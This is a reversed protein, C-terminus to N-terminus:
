FFILQYKVRVKKNLTICIGDHDSYYPSYQDIMPKDWVEHQDRWYAHDIYGGRIHTAENVLQNFGNGQLGQSMRNNRNILYCINFDGTILSPKGDTLMKLIHNLLEVSHGNRSRYVNIIDLDPSTFKTIQMNTEKVDQEHEVEAPKYYTDIGKGNGISIFHSDYGNLQHQDEEAISISKEILHIIDAELMHEDSQVDTFHSKLGACNLSAVKVANQNHKQWPTPNKNLSIVKMRELEQLAISSTRIKHEDLSNLIFIQELQQVRSLMVYAQADEFVSNLHLVVKTPSPITQGQIKHSTIAFALKVPFQIVTASAGAEGSRKRLTYQINVREIVVCDPYKLTLQCHKSKNGQGAKKNNLKIILKDVEGGTTKILSVLEGLQGNTLCDATDINHIIM